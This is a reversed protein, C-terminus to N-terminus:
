FRALAGVPRPAAPAASLLWRARGSRLLWVELSRPHSGPTFRGPLADGVARRRAAAASSAILGAIRFGLAWRAARQMINRALTPANYWDVLCFGRISGSSASISSRGGRFPRTCFAAASPLFLRRRESMCGLRCDASARNFVVCRDGARTAISSILVASRCGGVSPPPVLLPPSRRQRHDVFLAFCREAISARRSHMSNGFAIAATAPAPTRAGFGVRGSPTLFRWARSPHHFSFDPKKTRGAFISPLHDSYKNPSFRAMFISPGTTVLGSSDASADAPLFFLGCGAKSDLCNM